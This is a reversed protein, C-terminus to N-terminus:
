EKSSFNIQHAMIQRGNSASKSATYLSVFSARFEKLSIVMGPFFMGHVNCRRTRFLELM